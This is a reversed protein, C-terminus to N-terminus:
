LSFKEGKSPLQQSTPLGTLMTPGVSWVPPLCDGGKTGVGIFDDIMLMCCITVYPSLCILM